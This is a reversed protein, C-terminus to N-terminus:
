DQYFYLRDGLKEQTLYKTSDPIFEGPAAILLGSRHQVWRDTVILYSGQSRYLVEVPAFKAFPAPLADLAIPSGESEISRRDPESVADLIAKPTITDVAETIKSRVKENNSQCGLVMFISVFISAIALFRPKTM